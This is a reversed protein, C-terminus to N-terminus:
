TSPLASGRGAEVRIRYAGSGTGLSTARILYEGDAPLTVQLLSNTGDPGDDNNGVEEFAGNVMRGVAVVTDFADSSMNVTLSEGARGRYSWYDYVSGDDLEPDSEDLSGRAESGATIAVPTAPRQPARETVVLTYPGVGSGVSNARVVYEGGEDLTVRMRSNTGEGVGDDDTSKSVFEGGQMRGLNLYTDFSDSSMEIQLRQGPRGQLTYTDYYSDDEDLVADTEALRGTVPQGVGIPRPATTTPRPAETVQLTFDGTEDEGLAQAVVLYTGATAAQFRIRADTEGGSDDNEKIMDTIGGVNRVVRLYADFDDSRMTILYPRGAAAQFRYAKFRGRQAPKPDAQVLTGSITQGVRIPPLAQQAAVPAASGAVLLAALAGSRISIM